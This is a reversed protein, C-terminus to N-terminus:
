RRRIMMHDGRPGDGASENCTVWAVEGRLVVKQRTAKLPPMGGSLFLARGSNLVPGAGVIVPHGPHVCTADDSDTWLSKM